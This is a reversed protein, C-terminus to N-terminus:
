LKGFQIRKVNLYLKQSVRVKSRQVNSGGVDYYSHM